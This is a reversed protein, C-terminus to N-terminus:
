MTRGTLWTDKAAESPSNTATRPGLPHPLVVNSDQIAARMVGVAPHMRNPAVSTVARAPRARAWYRRWVTPTTNWAKLRMGLRVAWPM